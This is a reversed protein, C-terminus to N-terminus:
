FSHFTSVWLSENLHLGIESLITEIRLKMEKAAKNTFTVCLIETPSAKKRLILEAMRYTLVRTKGSGAGALVLLPGDLYSVAQNQAPNLKKEFFLSKSANLSKM